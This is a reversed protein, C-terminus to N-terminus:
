DEWWDQQCDWRAVEIWETKNNEPITSVPKERYVVWDTVGEDTYELIVRVGLACLPGYLKDIEVLQNASVNVRCTVNCDYPDFYVVKKDSM